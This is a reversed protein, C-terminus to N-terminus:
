RGYQTRPRKMVLGDVFQDVACHVGLDLMLHMRVTNTSSLSANYNTTIAKALPHTEKTKILM